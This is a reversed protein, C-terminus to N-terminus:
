DYGTWMAFDPMVAMMPRELTPFDVSRLERTPVFTAMMVGFGWVVRRGIWPTRLSGRPCATKTSVGPIMCFAFSGSVFFSRM